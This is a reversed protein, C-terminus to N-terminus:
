PNKKITAWGHIMPGDTEKEVPITTPHQQKKGPNNKEVARVEWENKFDEKREKDEVEFETCNKM